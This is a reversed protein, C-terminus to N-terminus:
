GQLKSKILDMPCEVFAASGGTLAGVMLMKLATPNNSDVGVLRKSQGYAFFLSASYLATGVLPSPSGKWLGFVGEEKFSTKVCDTISRYKLQGDLSTQTQLRIKITDLPHGVLVQTVGRASGATIDKLAKVAENDDSM